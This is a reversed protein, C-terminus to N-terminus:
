FLANPSPLSTPKKTPDQDTSLLQEQPPVYNDPVKLDGLKMTLYTFFRMEKNHRGGEEYSGLGDFELRFREDIKWSAFLKWLYGYIIKPTLKTTTSWIFSSDILLNKVIEKQYRLIVSNTRKQPNDELRFDDGVQVEQLFPLR